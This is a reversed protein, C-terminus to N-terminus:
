MLGPITKLSPSSIPLLKAAGVDSALEARISQSDEHTEQAAVLSPLLPFHSIGDWLSLGLCLRVSVHRSFFFLFFEIM